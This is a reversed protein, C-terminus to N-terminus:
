IDNPGLVGSLWIKEEEKSAAQGSRVLESILGALNGM